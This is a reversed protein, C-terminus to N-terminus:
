RRLIFSARVTDLTLDSNSYRTGPVWDYHENGFHDHLYEVRFIWNSLLFTEIGGGLSYGTLVRTDFWTSGGANSPAFHAARTGAFAVGGSFFALYQNFVYGVRGRAHGTWLLNVDDYRGSGGPDFGRDRADFVWSWDGEVGLVWAGSQFNYGLQGGLSGGDPHLDFPYHVMPTPAPPIITGTYDGKASAFNWGLTPGFYVGAWSPPTMSPPANDAQNRAHAPLGSLTLAIVILVWLRQM